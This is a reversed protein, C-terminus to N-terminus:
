RSRELEKIAMDIQYTDYQEGGFLAPSYDQLWTQILRLETRVYLPVLPVIGEDGFFSNELQRYLTARESEDLTSNAQRILDDEQSCPRNRRNESDECHLLDGMWNHADPYFTAWALEWVDPRAAGADPRTNALLTGFQVQEINIQDETCGLEEIWMRRILEAQQLSLDSNSVMFTFPPILQCSGFGSAALQQRAYDPSYGTGGENIPLSGVVGPPIAHRMSLGQVGFLEEVLRDRDIAAAFARRVEPERFIGSDFNFSIYHLTQEPLSQLRSAIREDEININENLDTLKILDLQRALWLDYTNQDEKAYLINIVEVNGQRSLPWLPNFQLTQFETNQPFYPGSTLFQVEENSQWDDSQWEDGLMEIFEPPLPRTFWLSTLTLFHAAPKNLTFELTRDNLAVVGIRNLDAPAANPNTNVQECGRIIFLTFADPTYPKSSCARQIAFVVDNATVPRVSEVNYLGNAQRSGPKVWFVDDRLHFTWVRGSDSVDWSDALSPEIQNTKHNFRTLGIFLNEILDIADQSVGQQPDLAPMTEREFGIDLTVPGLQEVPPETPPPTPSPTIEIIRTIVIEEGTISYVETVVIQAPEEVSTNDRCGVIVFVFTILALFLVTVSGLFKSVQPNNTSSVNVM